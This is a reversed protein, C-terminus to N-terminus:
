RGINEQLDIGYKSLYRKRPIEQELLSNRANVAISWNGNLSAIEYGATCKSTRKQSLIKQIADTVDAQGSVPHLRVNVGCMGVPDPCPQLAMVM